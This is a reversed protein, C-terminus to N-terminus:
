CLGLARGQRLSKLTHSSTSRNKRQKACWFRQNNLLKNKYKQTKGEKWLRAKVLPSKKLASVALEQIDPFTRARSHLTNTPFCHSNFLQNEKHSSLTSTLTRLPLVPSPLIINETKYKLTKGSRAM